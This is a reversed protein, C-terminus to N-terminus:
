AWSFHESHLYVGGAKSGKFIDLNEKAVANRVDNQMTDPGCVFVNLNQGMEAAKAAEEHVILPLQPRGEFERGPIATKEGNEPIAIIDASPGAEKPNTPQDSSSSPLHAKEAAEGTLHVRVRISCSSSEIVSCRSLLESVARLFWARSDSDRTALVVQLSLPGAANRTPISEKGDKGEKVSTSTSQGIEEDTPMLRQRAFLEIFPLCWGAGSGGAIVLLHDGQHYTQPNIGGYPGDVLVPVTAGPHELAHQYLKATFGRQHRIYFVLASQEEPNSSPLSCVTFPHASISQMLGFSTFRLFFHQGAKWNSNFPITIRTFGNDEVSIQAQQGLGYEFCTRIWPYVYCPM